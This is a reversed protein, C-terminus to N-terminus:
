GAPTCANPEAAPGPPGFFGARMVGLDVFNVTGDGNFDADADGTFFVARLQGLDIFNVTCDNNLDADCANGFGDGNTDRQDANVVLTCNDVGDAVGDGDTDPGSIGFNLRAVVPDHDSGRQATQFESNVHIAEYEAIPALNNSVVIHDLAQSNGNFAFTYREVEPLDRTLVQLVDSPAGTLADFVSSTFEFENMDGLVVINANPNSALEQDVVLNVEASQAARNAERGNVAPFIAGFLPSSGGKSSSHMNVVTLENGNFDFKAVLPKRSAAFADGDGLNSDVIRTVSGAVLSVRASNYLYGNRINGGPQGGDEGDVPPLDVFDYQPGGAMAIVSALLSYTASADTIGSEECGDSDQIEQLGIIDPSQMANVIHDAIAAFRGEGVDDDIDFVGDQCNNPDEVLPDLNLVNYSAITVQDDGPALTGSGPTLGASTVTFPQTVRVEFFGFRYDVVGFVDGLTDGTTVQPDFGPTFTDFLQLEIREPNTDNAGLTIGGRPNLGSAGVGNEAVVIIEDFRDRAAVARAAPEVVSMGEFTEYYDLPDNQPDFPMTGDDTIVTTSPLDSLTIAVPTPLPVSAQLVTVIPTTLQTISLNGTSTGGPTFETVTGEVQVENGVVVTPTTGSFVYIGDSTTDDGDGAVDQIYFGDGTVATVVGTTIASAGLQPSVHAAGQIEPITFTGALPCSNAAGPTDSGGATDFTGIDWADGDPCRKVHAPAFTGDPGVTPPGYHFETVTPPNDQELLAIRDLESAWPVIDLVGDDNTDLDQQVAGTFGTVLFHTTNDSNEFNISTVLDATGLTFTGEAALFYGSPGISSGTLSVATDIVGSGGAGDGIVVYTVGDLSTGPAGFLEFYEDNDSGPQDVRIENIQQAGAGLAAACLTLVLAGRLATSADDTFKM